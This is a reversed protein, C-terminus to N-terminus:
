LALGESSLLPSGSATLLGSVLLAPDSPSRKVADPASLNRFASSAPMLCFSGDSAQACRRAEHSL